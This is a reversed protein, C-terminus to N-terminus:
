VRVSFGQFLIFIQELRSNLRNYPVRKASLTMQEALNTDVNARVL